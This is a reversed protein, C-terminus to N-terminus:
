LSRIDLNDEPDLIGNNDVPCPANPVIWLRMPTGQIGALPPCSTITAAPFIAGVYNTSGTPGNNYSQNKKYVNRSTTGSLLDRIGAVTNNYVLNSEIVCNNSPVAGLGPFRLQMGVNNGRATCNRVVSQPHNGLLFGFGFGLAHTNDEAICNEFIVGTVQDDIFAGLFGGAFSLSNTSVHHGSAICNRIVLDSTQLTPDSGESVILFGFNAFTTDGKGNLAVCNELLGKRCNQILFAGQGHAPIGLNTNNANEEAVCNKMVLGATNLFVYPFCYVRSDSIDQGSTKNSNCVCSEMLCNNNSTTAVRGSFIGRTIKAGRNENFTSNLVRLNDVDLAIIGAVAGYDFLAPDDNAAPVHNADYTNRDLTADTVTQLYIGIVELPSENKDFHCREVSIEDTFAAKLGVCSLESQNFVAECRELEILSCHCDETGRIEIGGASANTPSVFFGNREVKVDHVKVNNCGELIQIGLFSFDSIVGNKIIVNSQGPTVCIGITDLKAHSEKQFLRAHNFDVTVDSANITIACTAKCKPDWKLNNKITYRGPENIILGNQPVHTIEHHRATKPQCHRSSSAHQLKLDGFHVAYMARAADRGTPKKGENFYKCANALAQPMPSNKKKLYAAHAFLREKVIDQADVIEKICLDIGDESQPADAGLLAFNCLMLALLKKM